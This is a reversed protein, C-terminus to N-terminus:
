NGGHADNVDRCLEELTDATHRCVVSGYVWVFEVYLGERFVIAGCHDWAAHMMAEGAQLAEVAGPEVQHDYNSYATRITATSPSQNAHVEELCGSTPM